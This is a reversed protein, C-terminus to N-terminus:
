VSILQCLDSDGVTFISRSRSGGSKCECWRQVYNVLGQKTFHEPHPQTFLESENTVEIFKHSDGQSLHILWPCLDFFWSQRIFVEVEDRVSTRPCFVTNKHALPTMAVERCPWRDSPVYLSSSFGHVIGTTLFAFAWVRSIAVRHHHEGWGIRDYNVVAMKKWARFASSRSWM